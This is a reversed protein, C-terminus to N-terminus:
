AKPEVTLNTVTDTYLVYVHVCVCVTIIGIIETWLKNPTNFMSNFLPLFLKQWTILKAKCCQTKICLLNVGITFFFASDCPFHKSFM